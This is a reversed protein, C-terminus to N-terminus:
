ISVQKDLMTLKNESKIPETWVQAHGDNCSQSIVINREDAGHITKTGLINTLVRKNEMNTGYLSMYQHVHIIDRHENNYKKSIKDRM